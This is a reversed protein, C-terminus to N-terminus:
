MEVDFYIAIRHNKADKAIVSFGTSTINVFNSIRNSQHNALGVLDNYPIAISTGNVTFENGDEKSVDQMNQNKWQVYYKGDNSNDSKINLNLWIFCEVSKDVNFELKLNTKDMFSTLPDQIKITHNSINLFYQADSSGTNQMTSMAMQGSIPSVDSLSGIKQPTVVLTGFRSECSRLYYTGASIVNFTTNDSLKRLKYSVMAAPSDKSFDGGNAIFDLVAQQNNIAKSADSASGGIIIGSYKAESLTKNNQINTSIDTSVAGFKFSANLADSVEKASASSEICIYARRGYSVSSVYCPVSPKDGLARKFDDLTTNIFWDSPTPPFDIDITYYTQVFKILFRSKKSDDNWNFQNSIKAKRGINATAGISLQLQEESQVETIEWSLKAATSGTIEANAICKKIGDRISSLTPSEIVTSSSVSTNAFDTSITLPARTCGLIPKYEGTVISNGDLIMLKM